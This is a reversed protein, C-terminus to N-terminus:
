AAVSLHRDLFAVLASKSLAGVTQGNLQGGKFLLLTPIGRVQYKAPTAGNEDVNVKVVKLRGAYSGALEDLLPAIAKCPPCWEAWFDVLVPLDSALVEQGFTEDSAHVIDTQSM